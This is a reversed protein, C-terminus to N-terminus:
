FSEIYQFFELVENTPDEPDLDPPFLGHGGTPSQVLQDITGGHEEVFQTANIQNECMTPSFTGTTNDQGGCYAWFHAGAYAQTLGADRVCTVTPPGLEDASWAGSDALFATFTKRGNSARDFVALEYLCASGRSFGYLFIHSGKIPCNQNIENLVYGLNQYITDKSDYIIPDGEAWQLALLAYGRKSIHEFMNKFCAEACGGSGHLAIIIIREELIDWNEPFYAIFFRNQGIPIIGGGNEEVALLVQSYDECYHNPYNLDTSTDLWARCLDMTPEESVDTISSWDQDLWSACEPEITDNNYCGFFFM